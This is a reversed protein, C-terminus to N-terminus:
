KYASECGAGCLLSENLMLWLQLMASDCFLVSHLFHWTVKIGLLTPYLLFNSSEDFIANPPPVGETKEIEKETAMRRAFDAGDLKYLAAESRQLDQAVQVM